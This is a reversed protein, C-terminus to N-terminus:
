ASVGLAANAADLDALTDIESWFGNKTVFLRVPHEHLHDAIVLDYHRNLRGSRIEADLWTALRQGYAKTIRLIGMSKFGGQPAAEQKGVITM